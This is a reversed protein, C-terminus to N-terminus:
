LDRRRPGAFCVHEAVREQDDHRDEKGVADGFVEDETVSLRMGDMRWALAARMQRPRLREGGPDFRVARRQTVGPLM